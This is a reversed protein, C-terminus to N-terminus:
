TDIMIFISMCLHKVLMDEIYSRRLVRKYSQDLIHWLHATDTKLEQIHKTQNAQTFDRIHRLPIKWITKSLSVRISESFYHDWQKIIVITSDYMDIM